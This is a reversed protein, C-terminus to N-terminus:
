GAAILQAWKGRGLGGEGTAMKIKLNSTIKKEGITKVDKDSQPKATGFGNANLTKGTKSLINM